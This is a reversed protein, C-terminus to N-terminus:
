GGFVGGAFDGFPATEWVPQPDATGLIGAPTFADVRGGAAEGFGALLEPRGDGNVDEAAVHIGGRVTSDGCFFSAVFATTGDPHSPALANVVVVRPGGGSGPGAVVEAKGDGDLDAAALHVGMRTDSEFAFFDSVIRAPTGALVSAGGFVAVRPAGGTGAGVVFDAQGDGDIDGVATTAGGRFDEEFAFFDVIVAGTRGDLVLVRPGGGFDPTLITEPVGDRNLDGCAVFAGGTFSSEFPTLTRM